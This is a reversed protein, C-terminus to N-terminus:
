ALEDVDPDVTAWIAGFAKGNEEIFGLELCADAEDDILELKGVFCL